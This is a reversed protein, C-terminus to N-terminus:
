LLELRHQMVCQGDVDVRTRLPAQGVEDHLTARAPQQRARRIEEEASGRGVRCRLHVRVNLKASVYMLKWLMSRKDDRASRPIQVERLVYLNRAESPIVNHTMDRATGQSATACVGTRM